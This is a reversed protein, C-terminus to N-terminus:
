EVLKEAGFEVRPAANSAIVISITEARVALSPFITLAVFILLAVTHSAGVAARAFLGVHQPQTQSWLRAGPSAPKAAIRKMRENGASRHQVDNGKKTIWGHCLGFKM